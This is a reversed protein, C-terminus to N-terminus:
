CILKGEEERVREKEREREIIAWARRVFYHWEFDLFGYSRSM